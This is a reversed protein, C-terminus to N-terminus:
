SKAVRRLLVADTDGGPLFRSAMAPRKALPLARPEEDDPPRLFRPPPSNRALVPHATPQPSHLTLRLSPGGTTSQFFSTQPDYPSESIRRYVLSVRPAGYAQPCRFCVDANRFLDRLTRPFRGVLCISPPPPFILFPHSVNGRFRSPSLPRPYSEECWVYPLNSVVM